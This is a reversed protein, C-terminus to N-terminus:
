PQERNGVVTFFGSRAINEAMQDTVPGGHSGGADLAPRDEAAPTVFLRNVDVILNVQARQGPTVNLPVHLHLKARRPDEGVHFFFPKWAGGVLAQGEIKLFTYNPNWSWYMDSDVDLPAVRASADGHNLQEDGGPCTNPVGVTFNLAKYTGAPALLSLKQSEPNAYDILAVGYALRKGGADALPAEIAAGSTDILTAESLYYRFKSVRYQVGSQSRNTSGQAFPEGGAITNLALAIPVPAVLRADARHPCDDM